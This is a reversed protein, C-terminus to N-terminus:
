GDKEPFLAKLLPERWTNSDTDYLGFGSCFEWYNWSMERKEMESRLFATWRARSPMGAKGYAGFEGVNVPIGNQKSWRAAEDLDAVIEAKQADTGLWERGTPLNRKVWGAGQHTFGFPEYFHVSAILNRDNPPLALDKLHGIRNWGLPAVLVVRDPNSARILQLARKQIRNWMHPEVKNTPENLMECCRARPQHRYHESIQRWIGLLRAEHAEPAEMFEHYHHVNIVVM